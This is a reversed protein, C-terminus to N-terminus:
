PIVQNASNRLVGRMELNGNIVIPVASDTFFGKVSPQDWQSTQADWNGARVLTGVGDNAARHLAKRYESHSVGDQAAALGTAWFILAMISIICAYRSVM